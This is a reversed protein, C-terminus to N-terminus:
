GAPAPALTGTNSDDLLETPAGLGNLNPLGEIGTLGGSPEPQAQMQQPLQPGGQESMLEDVDQLNAAEFWLEYFKKLNPVLGLQMLTPAAETVYQVIERIKQEKFIPNRIETSNQVVEVQYVGGWLEAVNMLSSDYIESGELERRLIEPTAAGGAGKEVIRRANEGLQAKNLQQADKGTIFMQEENGETNPFTAEAVSLIVEGLQRVFEEVKKLKHSAKINSAGEIISAETATRRIEPAAGRLYENVGTIEWIDQTIQNSVNYADASLPSPAITAFLSELPENTRVKVIANVVESQLAEEGETDFADERILHKTINRRRHTIMQSRSKNLEMQLDYIQELDGMHYPMKPLWHNPMNIIPCRAETVYKLPLTGHSFVILEDKVRDWFEYLEVWLLDIDDEISTINHAREGMNLGDDSELLMSRMTTELDDLNDYTGDDKLEGFTTRIRQAVWRASEFDDAAPDVWIDWPSIPACEIETYDLGERDVVRHMVKGYGDGYVLNNHAATEMTHTGGSERDRFFRNIWAAQGRAKVETADQSYPEVIFRPIQGTVYPVITEITSFSINVTILDATTDQVTQGSWHEGSYQAESQRWKEERWRQRLQKGHELRERAVRVKKEHEESNINDQPYGVFSPM